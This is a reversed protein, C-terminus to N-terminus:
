VFVFTSCKIRLSFSKIKREKKMGDCVRSMRLSQEMVFLSFFRQTNCKSISNITCCSQNPTIRQTIKNAFQDITIFYDLINESLSYKKYILGKFLLCFFSFTKIQRLPLP